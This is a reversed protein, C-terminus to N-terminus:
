AITPVLSSRAKSSECNAADMPCLLYPVICLLYRMKCDNSFLCLFLNCAVNIRCLTRDVIYTGEARLTEMAISLASATYTSLMKNNVELDNQICNM